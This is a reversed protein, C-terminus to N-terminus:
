KGRQASSKANKMNYKIFIVIFIFLIVLICLFVLISVFFSEGFFAHDADAQDDDLNDPPVIMMIVGLSDIYLEHTSGYLGMLQSNDPVEIDAFYTDKDGILQSNNEYIM